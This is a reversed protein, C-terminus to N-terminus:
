KNNNLHTIVQVINLLAKVNSSIPSCQMVHKPPQCINAPHPQPSLTPRTHLLFWKDAQRKNTAFFLLKSVLFEPSLRSMRVAVPWALSKNLCDANFELSENLRPLHQAIQSFNISRKFSNINCLNHHTAPQQYNTTM